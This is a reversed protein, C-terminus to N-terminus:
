LAVTFQISNLHQFLGGAIQENLMAKKRRIDNPFFDGEGLKWEEDNQERLVKRDYLLSLGDSKKSAEVLDGDGGGRCEKFASALITM